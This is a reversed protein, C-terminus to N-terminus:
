IERFTNTKMKSITCTNVNDLGLRQPPKYDCKLAILRSPKWTCQHFGWVFLRSVVLKRCKQYLLSWFKGRSDRRIDARSRLNSCGNCMSDLNGWFKFVLNDNVKNYAGVDNWKNKTKLGKKKM